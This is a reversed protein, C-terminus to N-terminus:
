YLLRTSVSSIRLAYQDITEKPLHKKKGQTITDIERCLNSLLNSPAFTATFAEVWDSRTRPAVLIVDAERTRLEALVNESRRELTGLVLQSYTELTLDELLLPLFRIAQKNIEDFPADLDSKLKVRKRFQALVLLVDEYSIGCLVLQEPIALATM